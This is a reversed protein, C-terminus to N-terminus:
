QYAVFQPATLGLALLPDRGTLLGLVGVTACALGVMLALRGVAGHLVTSLGAPLTVRPRPMTALRHVQPKAAPSETPEPLRDPQQGPVIVVWDSAHPRTRPRDLTSSPM